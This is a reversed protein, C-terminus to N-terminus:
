LVSWFSLARKDPLDPWYSEDQHWPTEALSGGAKSCVEEKDDKSLGINHDKSLNIKGVKCFLEEKGDKSLCINRDKSLNIKGVKSYDDKDDKILDIDADVDVGVDVDAVVDGDTRCDAKNNKSLDFDADESFYDKKGRRM